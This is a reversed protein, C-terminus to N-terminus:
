FLVAFSLSIWATMLSKFVLVIVPTVLGPGAQAQTQADTSSEAISFQFTFIKLQLVALGIGLGSGTTLILRYSVAKKIM